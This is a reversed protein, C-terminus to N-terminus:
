IIGTIAETVNIIHDGMKECSSYLDTYIMGSEIKYDGQEISKLHEKRLSNRFKNIKSEVDNAKITSVQNYTNNLNDIMIDFAQDLLEFM